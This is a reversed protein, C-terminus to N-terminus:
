LPNSATGSLILTFFNNTVSNSFIRFQANKIGSTLPNFFISLNVSEGQNLSFKAPNIFGFDMYNGRIISIPNSETQSSINLSGVGTNVITFTKTSKEGVKLNGFNIQSDKLLINSGEKIVIQPTGSVVQEGTGSLNLYFPNNISSNSWIKFKTNKQGVLTPQFFVNLDLSSGPNIEYVSPNTFGFMTLDGDLLSLVNENNQGVLNLKSSGLNQITIITTKKTNIYTNGLDLIGNNKLEFLSGNKVSIIPAPAPNGAFGVLNLIYTSNESSNSYIKLQTKKNGLGSPNFSVDMTISEGPEISSKLPNTFSFEQYDERFLSIANESGQAQFNLTAMGNNEITITKTSTSGQVVTGFDLTANKPLIELGTKVTISSTKKIIEFPGWEKFNSQNGRFDYAIFRLKYGTRLPLNSQVYWELSSSSSNEFSDTGLFSWSNYSPDWLYIDGSELAIDDSGFINIEYNQELGLKFDNVDKVSVLDITPATTDEYLHTFVRLGSYASGPALLINFKLDANQPEGCNVYARGNPLGSLEFNGVADSGYVFLDSVFVDSYEKSNDLSVYGNVSAVYKNKDSSTKVPIPHALDAYLSGNIGVVGILFEYDKDEPFYGLINQSPNYFYASWNGGKPRFLVVYNKRLPDIKDIGLSTYIAPKNNLSWQLVSFNQPIAPVNDVSSSFNFTKTIWNNDYNFDNNNEVYMRLETTGILSLTNDITFILNVTENPEIVVGNKLFDISIGTDFKDAFVYMTTTATSAYGTNKVTVTFEASDNNILVTNSVLNTIILDAKATSRLAYITSLVSSDFSGDIYQSDVIHKSLEIRNNEEANYIRWTNLTTINDIEDATGLMRSEQENYNNKLYTLLNNIKDQVKIQSSENGVSLSKLSYLYSATKNILFYNPAGNETYRMSGDSKIKELVYKTAKPMAGDISYNGVWLALMVELTTQVDSTYGSDLGYGGDSNAEAILENLLNQYPQGLGVLLRAKIAKERNNVTQTTTLYNLATAFQDNDTRNMSALALTVESTTEYTNITGFSGDANQNQSVYYLANDLYNYEIGEYYSILPIFDAAVADETIILKKIQEFFSIKKKAEDVKKVPNFAGEATVSRLNKGKNGKIERSKIQIKNNNEKVNVGKIKETDLKSANQLDFFNFGGSPVVNNIEIKELSFPEEEVKQTNIALAPLSSSVAMIGTLIFILIRRHIFM